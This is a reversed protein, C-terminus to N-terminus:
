ANRAKTFMEYLFLGLGVGLATMGVTVVGSSLPNARPTVYFEDGRADVVRVQKVNPLRQIADARQMAHMPDSLRAIRSEQHGSRFDVKFRYAGM